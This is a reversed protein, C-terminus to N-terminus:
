YDDSKFHRGVKSANLVRAAHIRRRGCQNFDKRLLIMYAFIIRGDLSPVWSPYQDREGTALILLDFSSPSVLRDSCLTPRTGPCSKGMWLFVDNRSRVTGSKTTVKAPGSSTVDTLM